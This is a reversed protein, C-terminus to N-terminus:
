SVRIAAQRLSRAAAYLVRDATALIRPERDICMALHLADGARLGLTYQRLLLQARAFTSREVPLIRLGSSLTEDFKAQADDAQRATLQRTRVKLGLASAFEVLTWDSVVLEVTQAEFWAGTRDSAAEEVYLPVLLSTDLYLSSAPM